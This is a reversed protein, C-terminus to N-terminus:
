LAHIYGQSEIRLDVTETGVVNLVCTSNCENGISLGQGDFEIFLPYTPTVGDLNISVDDLLIRRDIDAETGCTTSTNDEIVMYDSTIVVGNCIGMQNMAKLQSLRLLSVLQDRSAVHAISSSGFFKPVVSVALISIILIVLILEILTFARIHRM